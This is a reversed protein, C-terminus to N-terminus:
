GQDEIKKLMEKTLGELTYRGDTLKEVLQQVEQAIYAFDPAEEPQIVIDDAVLEQWEVQQDNASIREKYFWKGDMFIFYYMEPIMERLDSKQILTNEM